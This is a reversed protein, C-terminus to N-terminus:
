RDEPQLEKCLARWGPSVERALSIARDFLRLVADAFADENADTDIRVRLTGHAGDFELAGFRRAYGSRVVFEHAENRRSEPVAFPLTLYLRVNLEDPDVAFFAGTIDPDTPLPAQYVLVGEVLQPEGKWGLQGALDKIANLAEMQVPTLSLAKM